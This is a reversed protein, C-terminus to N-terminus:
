VLAEALRGERRASYGDVRLLRIRLTAPWDEQILARAEEAATRAAAPDGLVLRFVALQVVSSFARRPLGLGLYLSRARDAAEAQLTVPVHGFMNTSAVARWYRAAVAPEVGAEVWKQLP